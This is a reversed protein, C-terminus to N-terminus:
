GHRPRKPLKGWVGPYHEAVRTKKVMYEQLIQNARKSSEFLPHNHAENMLIRTLHPKVEQYYRTFIDQSSVVAASALFSLVKYANNYLDQDDIHEKEALLVKIAGHPSQLFDILKVRVKE